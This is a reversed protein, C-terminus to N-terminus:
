EIEAYPEAEKWAKKISNSLRPQVRGEMDGVETAGQTREVFGTNQLLSHINNKANDAAKTRNRRTATTERKSKQKVEDMGKRARAATAYDESAKNKEARRARTYRWELLSTQGLRRDKCPIQVFRDRAQDYFYIFRLDRPDFHFRFKRYQKLNDPDKENIFRRLEDSTYELCEFEVGTKRINRQFAPLLEIRFADENEIRRITGRPMGSRGEILGEKWKSLPTQGNLGAHPRNPYEGAIFHASFLELEDLTMHADKESPYDARDQPNSFTTGALTHLKRNLTRMFAEVHGGDESRKLRRSRISMGFRETVRQFNGNEFEKGSDLQFGNVFGECPWDYELGRERLWPGKPLIAHALCLGTTFYQPRDLSIYFGTVMRSYLDIAITFYARGIPRRTVADVLIVDGPTCDIAVIELPGEAETYGTGVPNFKMRAQRPGFRKLTQIEPPIRAIQRSVTNRHPPPWGQEFCWDRIRRTVESISQRELTLYLERIGVIILRQTEPHLRRGPKRLNGLLAMIDGEQALFRAIWRYLTSPDVGHRRAITSVSVDKPSRFFEQIALYKCQIGEWEIVTVELASRESRPTDPQGKGQIFRSVFDEEEFQHTKSVLSLNLENM